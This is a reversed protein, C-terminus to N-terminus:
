ARRRRATLCLGGLAFLLASAPEPVVNITFTWANNGLGEITQFTIASEAYDSPVFPLPSGVSTVPFSGSGLSNDSSDFVQFATGGNGGVVTYGSLVFSEIVGGVPLLLEVTDIDTNGPGAAEAADASGTFTNTGIDLDLTIGPSPDGASGAIDTTETFDLVAGSAPGSLCLALAATLTALTKM